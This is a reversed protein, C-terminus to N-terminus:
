YFQLMPLSTSLLEWAALFAITFFSIFLLKGHRLPSLAIHPVTTGVGLLPMLLSVRTNSSNHDTKM